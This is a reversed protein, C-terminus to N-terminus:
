PIAQVVFPEVPFALPQDTVFMSVDVLEILANTSQDFFFWSKCPLVGGDYVDYIGNRAAVTGVSGVGHFEPELSLVACSNVPFAKARYYGIIQGTDALVYVYAPHDVMNRREVFETLAQRLPFNVTPSPKEVNSPPVSMSTGCASLVIFASVVTGLILMQLQM